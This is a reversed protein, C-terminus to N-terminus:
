ESCMTLNQMSLVSNLLRVKVESYVFLIVGIIVLLLGFVFWAAVEEAFEIQVDIFNLINVIFLNM